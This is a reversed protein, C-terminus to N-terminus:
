IMIIITQHLHYYYSATTTKQRNWKSKWKRNMNIIIIISITPLKGFVFFFLPSFFTKQIKKKNISNLSRTIKNKKKWSHRNRNVISIIDCITQIYLSWIIIEMIIIIEKIKKFLISHHIFHFWPLCLFFKEKKNINIGSTWFTSCDCYCCSFITIFREGGGNWEIVYHHLSRLIVDMYGYSYYIELWIMMIVLLKRM